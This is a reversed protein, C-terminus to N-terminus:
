LTANRVVSVNNNTTPTTWVFGSAANHFADSLLTEDWAVTHEVAFKLTYVTANGDGDDSVAPLDTVSGVPERTVSVPSMIVPQTRTSITEVMVDLSEQTTDDGALVVGGPVGSFDSSLDQDKTLIPVLTRVTFFDMNGTLSEYGTETYGHVKEVM